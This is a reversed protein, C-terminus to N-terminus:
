IKLFLIPEQNSCFVPKHPRKRFYVALTNSPAQLLSKVHRIRLFNHSYNKFYASETGNRTRQIERLEGMEPIEIKVLVQFVLRYVQKARRIFNPEIQKKKKHFYLPIFRRGVCVWLDTELSFIGFNEPSLLGSFIYIKRFIQM